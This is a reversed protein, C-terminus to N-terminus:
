KQHTDVYMLLEPLEQVTFGSDRVFEEGDENLEGTPSSGRVSRYNEKQDLDLLIYQSSAKDYEVSYGQSLLQQNLLSIVM